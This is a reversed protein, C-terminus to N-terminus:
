ETGEGCRRWDKSRTGRMNISMFKYTLFRKDDLQEFRLGGQRIGEIVERGVIMFESRLREGVDERAKRRQEATDQEGLRKRQLDQLSEAGGASAARFSWWRWPPDSGPGGSGGASPEFLNELYRRGQGMQRRAGPMASSYERWAQM